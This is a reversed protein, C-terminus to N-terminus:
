SRPTVLAVVLLAAGLAASLVADLARSRVAIMGVRASPLMARLAGALLLAAALVLTGARFGGVDLALLALGAAGVLLVLLAAWERRLLEM